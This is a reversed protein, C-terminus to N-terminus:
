VALPDVDVAWRIVGKGAPGKRAAHLVPQWEALFRQLATRSSCEVLMQAREVNAVRQLAMPVPSYVTVFQRHALTDALASAQQLFEQASEQSRADTRLLAQYSHPPMGAQARENLTQAAFRPYDHQLLAQFLPHQPQATQVWMESGASRAADRGARGAAQMLLSFLRESARYDASFLAGDPNVAAVLTIRRFDHGKAVMQTGVLVDVEGAHVQALQEQLAGKLRTSDADIRAICVPEGNPRRVDALLQALQEELRETGRGV